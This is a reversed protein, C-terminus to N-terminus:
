TQAPNDNASIRLEKEKGLSNKRRKVRGEEDYKRPM